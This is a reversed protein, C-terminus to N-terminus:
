GDALDLVHALAYHGQYGAMTWFSRRCSCEHRHPFTFQPLPVAPVWEGRRNKVSIGGHPFLPGLDDPPKGVDM